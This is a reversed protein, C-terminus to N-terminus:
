AVERVPASGSGHNKGGCSCECDHGTAATCRGDCKTEARYRGVVPLATKLLGCACRYILKAPDGTYASFERGDDTRYASHLHGLRERPGIPSPIESALVSFRAGCDKCVRNYRRM